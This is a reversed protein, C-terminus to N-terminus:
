KIPFTRLDIRQAEVQKTSRSAEHKQKGSWPSVLHEQLPPSGLQTHRCLLVFRLPRVVLFLELSEFCICEIM